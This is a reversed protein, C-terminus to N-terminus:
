TIFSQNVGNGCCGPSNTVCRGNGSIYENPLPLKKGGSITYLDDREKVLPFFSSKYVVAM